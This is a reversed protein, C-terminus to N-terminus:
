VRSHIFLYSRWLANLGKGLSPKSCWKVGCTWYQTCGLSSMGERSAVERGTMRRLTSRVERKKMQKSPRQSTESGGRYLALARRM